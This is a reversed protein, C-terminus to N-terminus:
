YWWLWDIVLWGMLLWGIMLWGVIILYYYCFVIILTSLVTLLSLFLTNYDLISICKSLVIWWVCCYCYYCYDYYIIFVISLVLANDSYYLILISFLLGDLYYYYGISYIFILYFM